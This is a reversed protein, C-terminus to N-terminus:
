NATIKRFVFIASILVISSILLIGGTIAFFHAYIGAAQKLQELHKLAFNINALEAVRGAFFSAVAQALMFIGMIMSTLELPALRTLAALVTPFLLLEAIPFIFYAIVIYLASAHGYISAHKAALLFVLFGMALFLLALILRAYTLSTNKRRSIIALLAIIFPGITLMFIPDLAYFEATPILFGFIHRDIIREIFLNLTAGGQTLFTTFVIVVFLILLIKTINKRIQKNHQRMYYGLYILVILSAIALLFGDITYNFLLYLLPISIVSGLYIGVIKLHRHLCKISNVQPLFKHKSVFVAVGSFM